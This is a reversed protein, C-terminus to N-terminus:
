EAVDAPEQSVGDQRGSSAVLQQNVAKLESNEQTLEEVKGQLETAVAQLLVTEHIAQTLKQQYAQQVLEPNAQVQTM